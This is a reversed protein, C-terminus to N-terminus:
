CDPCTGGGGEAGASVSVGELVQKGARSQDRFVTVGKCGALYAQIFVERVESVSAERPLNVTKSVASDSHRQFAAQVAVHETPSVSQAPTWCDGLEQRLFSEQGEPSLALWKEDAGKEKVLAAVVPQVEVLRRGDLVNRALIPAFIPEIGSSCGAILSITGTPALTTVTANRLPPYGLQDWLSAKFAPFSGKELALERSANRAERSLFGMVDEAVEISARSGYPIGSQLLFDAFGMLGLGIKRTKKTARECESVPFGNIDIVDDLFRVALHIDRKLTAWDLRGSGRKAVYKGIDLSGLNCSEFDLLPQEGCPNTSEFQGLSPTPNLRNMRDLFVVGPDGTNWAALVMADFVARAKLVRSTLGSSPEKLAWEGDNLVAEMFEDTVGVSINFNTSQGLDQKLAIFSMVDPHDVRLVGMNAGRRTGGQKIADTASDFVRLFSVPGSAVGGSGRVIAGESRLRSFSFGTGGGSQHILAANKLTTFISELTDEIPLVYCASLQGKERGANMLTPSNPVFRLSEMLRFFREAFRSQLEVREAQAVARAVRELM